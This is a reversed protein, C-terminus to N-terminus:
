LCCYRKISFSCCNSVYPDYTILRRTQLTLFHVSVWHSCFIASHYLAFFGFVYIGSVALFLAFNVKKKEKNYSSFASFVYILVIQYFPIIM